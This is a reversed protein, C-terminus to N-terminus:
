LFLNEGKPLTCNGTIQARRAQSVGDRRAGCGLEVPGSTKIEPRREKARESNRGPSGERGGNRGKSGKKQHTSSSQDEEDERYRDEQQRWGPLNQLAANHREINESNGLVPSLPPACLQYM